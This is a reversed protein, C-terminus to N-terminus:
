DGFDLEQEPEIYFEEDVPARIHIPLTEDYEDDNPDDKWEILLPEPDYKDDMKPRSM